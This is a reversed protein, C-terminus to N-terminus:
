SQGRKAIRAALGEKILQDVGKQLSGFELTMWEIVGRELRISKQIKANGTTPRGAKKKENSM